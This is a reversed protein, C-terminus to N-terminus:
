NCYELRRALACADVHNRRFGRVRGTAQDTIHFFGVGAPVVKFRPLPTQGRVALLPYFASDFGVQPSTANAIPARRTETNEHM